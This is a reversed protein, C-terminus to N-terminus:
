IDAYEDLLMYKELIKSWVNQKKFIYELIDRVAGRGGNYPSVYDSVKKVDDCADNTSASFASVIMPPIDILDDGIYAINKESCSFHKKIEQLSNLKNHQRQLVFDVKLQEARKQTVKSYRGSVWAIKIGLDLALHIAHGDKVDFFKYEKGDDDLIIRGDTLVGDVDMVIVKINKM